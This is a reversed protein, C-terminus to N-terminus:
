EELDFITLQEDEEQPEWQFCKGSAMTPEGDMRAGCRMCYNDGLNEQCFGCESCTAAHGWIKWHGHENRM